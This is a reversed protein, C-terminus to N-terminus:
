GQVPWFPQMAIGMSLSPWAGGGIVGINQYISM